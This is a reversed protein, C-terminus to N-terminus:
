LGSPLEPREIAWYFFSVMAAGRLNGRDVVEGFVEVTLDEGDIANTLASEVASRGKLNQLFVGRLREVKKLAVNPNQKFGEFDSKADHTTKTEGNPVREWKM